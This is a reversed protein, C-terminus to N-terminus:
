GGLFSVEVLSLSMLEKIIFLALDEKYERQHFNSKLNFFKM